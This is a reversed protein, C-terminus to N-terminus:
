KGYYRVPVGRSIAYHVTYSAGGTSKTCYAYLLEARDVMYRDRACFAGPFFTPYLVAQSDCAKLLREYKEREAAPFRKAQDPFPICAEVRVHYRSKLEILCELAMLDFGMAMGCYFMTYGARVIAELDDFLMKKDFNTPVDRHGTLACAMEKM